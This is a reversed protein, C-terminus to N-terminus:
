YKLVYEYVAIRGYVTYQSDEYYVCIPRYFLDSVLYFFYVVVYM